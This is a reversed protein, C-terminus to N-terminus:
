LSHVRQLLLMRTRTDDVRARRVIGFQVGPLFGDGGAELTM